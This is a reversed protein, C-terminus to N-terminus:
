SGLSQTPHIQSV